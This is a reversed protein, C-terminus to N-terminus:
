SNSIRQTRAPNGVCDRSQLKSRRHQCVSQIVAAAVEPLKFSLPSSLFDVTVATRTKANRMSDEVSTFESKEMSANDSCNFSRTVIASRPFLKEDLGTAADSAFPLSTPDDTVPLTRGPGTQGDVEVAPNFFDIPISPRRGCSSKEADGDDSIDVASAPLPMAASSSASATLSSLWLDAASSATLLHGV